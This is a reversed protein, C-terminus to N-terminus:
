KGTVGAITERLKRPETVVRLLTEEDVQQYCNELSRTDLWGGAEAVDKLPLHKRETAWKRRYAHFGLLQKAPDRPLGDVFGCAEDPCERQENGLPEGCRPCSYGYGAQGRSAIEDRRERSRDPVVAAKEMADGAARDLLFAGIREAGLAVADVSGEVAVEEGAEGTVGDPLSGFVAVPGMGLEVPRAPDVGSAPLPLLSEGLEVVPDRGEPVPGGAGVAPSTVGLFRVVPEPGVVEAVQEVPLHVPDLKGPRFSGGVPLQGVGLDRAPVM